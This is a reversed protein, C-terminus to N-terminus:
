LCGCVHVRTPTCGYRVWDTQQSARSHRLWLCLWCGSRTELETEWHLLWSGKSPRRTRPGCHSACPPCLTLLLEWAFVPHRWSVRSDAQATVLYLYCSVPNYSRTYFLYGQTWAPLHELPQFSTPPLLSLDKKNLFLQTSVAEPHTVSDDEGGLLRGPSGGPPCWTLWTGCRSMGRSTM